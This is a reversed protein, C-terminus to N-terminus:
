LRHYRFLEQRCVPCTHKVDMLSGVCFPLFCCGLVCGFVFLGTCLLWTIVGPVPSTVTIIYNGCYRCVSRVPTASGMRPLSTFVAPQAGPPGQIYLPPLVPTGPPPPPEQPPNWRPARPTRRELLPIRAAYLEPSQAASRKDRTGMIGGPQGPVPTRVERTGRGLGGPPGPRIGGRRGPACPGAPTTTPPRGIRLSLFLFGVVALSERLFDDSAHSYDATHIAVDLSFAGNMCGCLRIAFANHSLLRGCSQTSYSGM